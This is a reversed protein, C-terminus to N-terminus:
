PLISVAPPTLTPTKSRTAVTRVTRRKQSNRNHGVDSASNTQTNKNTSSKLQAADTKAPHANSSGNSIKKAPATAYDTVAGPVDSLHDYGYFAVFGGALLIALMVVIM